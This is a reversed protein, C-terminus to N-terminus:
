KSAMHDCKVKVLHYHKLYMINSFEKAKYYLKDTIIGLWINMREDQCMFLFGRASLFDITTMIASPNVNQVCLEATLM